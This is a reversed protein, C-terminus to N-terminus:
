LLKVGIDYVNEFGSGSVGTATVGGDCILRTKKQADLSGITNGNKENIGSSTSDGGDVRAPSASQLADDYFGDSFHLHFEGGLRDIQESRKAGRDAATAVFNAGFDGGSEKGPEGVCRFPEVLKAGAVLGVRELPEAHHGGAVLRGGFVDIEIKALGVAGLEEISAEVCFVDKRAIEAGGTVAIKKETIAFFAGSGAAEQGDDADPGGSVAWIVGRQETTQALSGIRQCASLKRTSM